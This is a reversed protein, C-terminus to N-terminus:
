ATPDSWAIAARVLQHWRDISIGEVQEAALQHGPEIEARPSQRPARHHVMVKLHLTPAEYGPLSTMLWGFRPPDAARDPSDWRATVAEYSAKSLSCWVSWAFPASLGKIPLEVLARIFFHEGDVVCVDGNLKVRTDFDADLVGLDRWPPDAGFCLPADPLPSGCTACLWGSKDHDTHTCNM